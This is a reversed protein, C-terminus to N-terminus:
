KTYEIFINGSTGVISVSRFVVQESCGIDRFLKDLKPIDNEDLVSDDISILLDTEKEYKQNKTLQNTKRQLRRRVIEQIDGLVKTSPVLDDSIEVQHGTRKTGSIAMKGLLPVPGKEIFQQMRLDDRDEIAQSIEIKQAIGKEIVIADYHQSSDNLIRCRVDARNHGKFVLYRYLPFAEQYFRGFIGIRLLIRRSLEDGEERPLADSDARWELTKHSVWECFEEGTREASLEKSTLYNSEKFM